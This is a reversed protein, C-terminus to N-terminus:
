LPPERAARDALAAAIPDERRWILTEVAARGGPRIIYEFGRQKLNDGLLCPHRRHLMRLYEGPALAEAAALTRILPEPPELDSVDLLREASESM